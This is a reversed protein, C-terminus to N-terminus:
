VAEAAPKQFFRGLRELLFMAQQRLGPMAAVVAVAVLGGALGGVVLQILPAYSLVAHRALWTAGTVAAYLPLHKLFVGYLDKASVPGSRGVIHYQVPLRVLLGIIASAVAVGVAGYPIGAAATLITLLPIAVGAILLDRSRGQTTLLWMSAYGLPIYLSAITLWAFIPVVSAWKPGLLALVVPESLALLLGAFPFSLMAIIGYVRLFVEKYREPQGQLRSLVPLFVTDFPTIFQDMPRYLLVQGRSYFGVTDAGYFRGLLIVDAGAALRKLFVYFTMSAGFHLLSKTGVRRRPFDPRWGSAVWTLVMEVVSSSLQMGVLSWYGWGLLACVTGALFGVAMSCIEVVAIAQFRMQRNLLALHQVASGGLLFSLSLYITIAILRDDRYFWAVLPSLAVGILSIVAGFVLNIWFLASVQAQTIGEKQITATSLGGERFVRLVSMLAGTMAVLGFDGPSLLRALVVMSGLNLGFKIVQAAATIFGGSIAHQELNKLLHDTRIHRDGAVSTLGPSAGEPPTPPATGTPPIPPDVDM